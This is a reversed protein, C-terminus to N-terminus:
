ERESPRSNEYICIAAMRRTTLDKGLHVLFGFSGQCYQSTM